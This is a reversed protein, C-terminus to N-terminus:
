LVTWSCPSGIIRAVPLGAQTIVIYLLSWIVMNKKEWRSGTLWVMPLGAMVGVLTLIGVLLLAGSDM